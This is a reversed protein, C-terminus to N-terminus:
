ACYVKYRSTNCINIAANLDRDMVNGCDECIFLRNSMAIKNNITKCNSCIRTSPYRQDILRLEINREECKAILRMKFEYWKSKSIHDHLTHNGQIFADSTIMEHVNLDEIAIYNPKTKTLNNVLKCIKDTGYNTRKLYLKRLRKYLKEIRCSFHADSRMQYLEKQSPYNGNNADMYDRVMRNYNVEVKKNLIRQIRCIENELKIYKPDNLFTGEPILDDNPIINGNEDVVTAYKLIGLDIGIGPSYSGFDEDSKIDYIVFVFYKEDKTRIIRGSSILSEEPLKDKRPCRITGLAPLVITNRMSPENQKLHFGYNIPFFYSTFGNGRKRSKYNPRNKEDNNFYSRFARHCDIIAHQLAPNYVGQLWKFKENTQKLVTFKKMYAYADCYKTNCENYGIFQNWVFNCGRLISDIRRKQAENPYIRVKMSRKM